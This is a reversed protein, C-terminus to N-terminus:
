QLRFEHRCFDDGASLAHTRRHTKPDAGLMGCVMGQDFWCVIDPFEQALERYVCNQVEVVVVGESSDDLTVSYGAEDM